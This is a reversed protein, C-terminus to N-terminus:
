IARLTGAVIADRLETHRVKGNATRPIARSGVVLVREPAFGLARQISQAVDRAAASSDTQPTTEVVVVIEETGDSSVGVAAALKIGDVLLAAEELERPALVAGGRKLMARTRGLVFLRGEADLYGTDGTHLWGGALTERTAEEADFYGAFVPEGRVLIEGAEGDGAIRIEIGPFPRGCSVHGRADVHLPEGPRVTAVGLTAEALGYAPVIVNHLGFRKEFSEVTARRVPEGGNTACRLSTLDVSAPDVLRTALRYAFDPAGTITARTSSITSLWEPITEVAPPVLHCRAGAFAAGIVFRVLGLDHWPPVWTVLIDRSSTGIAEASSRVSAVASSHRIMVARPEGSTGSTPQLFALDEPSVEALVDDGEASDGAAAISIGQERAAAITEAPGDPPVVLLRPRVRHARRMATEVPVQPNLAVSAAGLMQIAWFMRIFELGAPLLLAVRDGRHIGAHRLARARAAADRELEGWTVAKGREAYAVREGDRAARARLLAPLTTESPTLM